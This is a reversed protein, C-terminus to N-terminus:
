FGMFLTIMGGFDSYKGAFDGNADIKIGSNRDWKWGLGVQPTWFDPIAANHLIDTYSAGGEIFFPGRGPTYTVKVGNRVIWQNVFTDLHYDGFGVPVGSTYNVQDALTFTLDEYRYSVASTGGGGILVAGTAEDTSAGLAGFGWPTVMWAFGNDEHGNILTIPLGIEQGILYTNAGDINCYQIATGLGLAINDSFRFTSGLSIRAFNGNLGGARIVGGDADVRLEGV